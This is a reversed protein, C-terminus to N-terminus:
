GITIIKSRKDVGRGPNSYLTGGVFRIGNQETDASLWTGTTDLHINYPSYKQTSLRSDQIPNIHTVLIKYYGNNTVEWKKALEFETNNLYNIYEKDAPVGIAGHRVNSTENPKFINKLLEYAVEKGYYRYWKTEKWDGSYSIIKPFGYLTLVDIKKGGRCEIIMNTNYQYHLNKPWTVNGIQRKLTKERLDDLVKDAMCSFMETEGYNCVFQTTPYKRCLTEAYLMSRKVSGNNGNLVVLDVDPIKEEEYSFENFKLFLDSILHVTLYSM